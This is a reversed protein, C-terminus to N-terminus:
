AIKPIKWCKSPSDAFVYVRLIRDNRDGRFCTGAFILVLLFSINFSEIFCVGRYCPYCVAEITMLSFFDRYSPCNQFIKAQSHGTAM